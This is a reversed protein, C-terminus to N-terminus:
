AHLDKGRLLPAAPGGSVSRIKRWPDRKRLRKKVEAAWTDTDAATLLNLEEEDLDQVGGGGVADTENSSFLDAEQTLVADAAQYLLEIYRSTNTLLGEYM